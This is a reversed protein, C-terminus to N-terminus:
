KPHLIIPGRLFDVTRRCARRAEQETLKSTPRRCKKNKKPCRANNQAATRVPVTASAFASEGAFSASITFEGTLGKAMQGWYATTMRPFEWTFPACSSGNISLQLSIDGVTSGEACSVIVMLNKLVTANSIYDTESEVDYGFEGAEITCQAASVTAQASSLLLLATLLKRFYM